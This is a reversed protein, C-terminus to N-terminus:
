TGVHVIEPITNVEGVEHTSTLIHRPHSLSNHRNDHNRHQMIRSVKSNRALELKHVKRLTTFSVPHLIDPMFRLQLRTASTATSIRPLGIQLCTNRLTILMQLLKQRKRIRRNLKSQEITLRKNHFRLQNFSRIKIQISSVM